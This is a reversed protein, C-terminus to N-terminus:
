KKIYFADQGVSIRGKVAPSVGAYNETNSVIAMVTPDYGKSKIKEIDFAVIKDGKKLHSGQEAFKEFGEGNLEVTNIGIHILLEVGSELRLGIAHLTPYLVTLECDEPAVIEGKSPVIAIGKGLAESSFVDDDSETVNMATGEVPASVKINASAETVEVYDKNEDKTVAPAKPATKSVM